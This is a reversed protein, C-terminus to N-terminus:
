QPATFKKIFDPINIIIKQFKEPITDIRVSKRLTEEGRNIYINIFKGPPTNEIIRRLQRMNKVRKHGVKIIVDDVQLGSKEAPSDEIVETIRVGKSCDEGRIGLWGKKINGFKRIKDIKQFLLKVPVFISGEYETGFPSLVFRRGFIQMGERVSGILVGVLEGRLNYVGDGNGGPLMPLSIIGLGEDTYGKFFTLGDIGMVGYGKGSIILMDGKQINGRMVPPNFTYDKVDIVVIGTYEDAGVVKGRLDKGKYYIDVHSCKIPGSTIITHEGIVTGTAVIDGDPIYISVEYQKIKNYLSHIDKQLNILVSSALLFLLM